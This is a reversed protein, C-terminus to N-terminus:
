DICSKYNYKQCEFYRNAKRETDGRVAKAEAEYCTAPDLGDPTKQSWEIVACNCLLFALAIISIFKKM